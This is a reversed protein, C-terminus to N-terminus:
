PIQWDYILLGNVRGFEATNHTMLTLNNALAISAILLDNAGIMLGRSPIDARVLGYEEAARDDFPLSQFQQRITQVLALNRSRKRRRFPSGWLAIRCRRDFM